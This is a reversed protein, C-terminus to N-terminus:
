SRQEDDALILELVNRRRRHEVRVTVESVDPVGYEVALEAVAYKVGRLKKRENFPYDHLPRFTTIGRVQPNYITSGSNIPSLKAKEAYTELLRETDVTIVTHKRGRYARAALLTEVRDLTVWFFVHRNIMEYWQQPTMGQLCKRLASEHMPKQDRIVVAGYKPHRITISEPRHASEISRRFDGTIEFLDLLATTSLLGHKLISAWSDAEAMHYLRPYYRTFEEPTISLAEVM